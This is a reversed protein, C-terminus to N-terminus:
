LWEQRGFNAPLGDRINGEAWWLDDLCGKRVYLQLQLPLRERCLKWKLQDVKVQRAHDRTTFGRGLDVALVGKILIPQSLKEAQSVALELDDVNVAHQDDDIELLRREISDDPQDWGLAPIFEQWFGPLVKKCSMLSLRELQGSGGLERSHQLAHGLARVEDAGLQGLTLFLHETEEEPHGSQNDHAQRALLPGIGRLLSACAGEAKIRSFGSKFV